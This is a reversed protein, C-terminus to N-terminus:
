WSSFTSSAIGSFSFCSDVGAFDGGGDTRKDLCLLLQAAEEDDLGLVHVLRARDGGPEWRRADRHDLDPGDLLQLV